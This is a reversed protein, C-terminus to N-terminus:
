PFIGTKHLLRRIILKHFPLRLNKTLPIDAYNLEGNDLIMERHDALVERWDTATIHRFQSNPGEKRVEHRVDLRHQVQQPSRWQYHRLTIPEPWPIGMHKPAKSDAPWKLGRRYKFFRPETYAVPRLYRLYAKDREFDGVFEHEKIDKDTLVYDLSRKFLTHYGRPVSSLFSRPEDVYIEDADMKYCWWDGEVAEGRFAEFADARLDNSYLRLDQKWPLVVENELEQVAEWTGDSSGNDIIIIRDFSSEAAKITSRIIDIEDKVLMIGFLKM